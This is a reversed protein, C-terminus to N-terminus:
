AVFHNLDFSVKTEDLGKLYDSRTKRSGKDVWEHLEQVIQLMFQAKDMKDMQGQNIGRDSKGKPGRQQSSSSTPPVRSAFDSATSVLSKRTEVV